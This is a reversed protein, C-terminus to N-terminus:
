LLAFVFFVPLLSGNELDINEFRRLWDVAERVNVARLLLLRPLGALRLLGELRGFGRELFSFRCYSAARRLAVPIRAEGVLLHNIHGLRQCNAAQKRAISPPSSRATM